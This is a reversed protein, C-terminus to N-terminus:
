IHILSLEEDIYNKNKEDVEIKTLNTCGDFANYNILFVNEPININTLSSCGYFVNNSIVEINKPIQISILNTCRGFANGGIDLVTEPIEVKTLARCKFFAYDNIETLSEPLTINKLLECEYFAYTGVSTIGEGILVNELVNKYGDRWVDRSSASNWNKMKGKGSITLTKNELTWKAIVTKDGNESIDWTEEKKIENNTEINQAEGIM